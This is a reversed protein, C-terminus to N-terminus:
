TVAASPWVVGTLRESLEWLRRGVEADRAAEGIGTAGTILVKRGAQPPIDQTTWSSMM